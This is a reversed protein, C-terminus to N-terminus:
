GEVVALTGNRMIIVGVIGHEPAVAALVTEITVALHTLFQRDPVAALARERVLKEFFFRHRAMSAVEFQEQLGKLAATRRVPCCIVLSSGEDTVVSNRPLRSFVPTILASLGAM